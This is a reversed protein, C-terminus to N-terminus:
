IAKANEAAYECCRVEGEEIEDIKAGCNPCYHYRDVEGIFPTHCCSCKFIPLYGSDRKDKKWNGIIIWKGHRIPEADLAREHEVWQMVRFVQILESGNTYIQDTDIFKYQDIYEEITEPFMMADSM